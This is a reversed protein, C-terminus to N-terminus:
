QPAVRYGAPQRLDMAFVPRGMSPTSNSRALSPRPSRAAKIMQESPLTSKGAVDAIVHAYHSLLTAPSHGMWEAIQTISHRGEHILLSAFSHRLDYPVPGDYTRMPKRRSDKVVTTFIITALGVAECAPQWVRSRWNRWDGDHWPAGDPRAFILGDTRGRAGEITRLGIENLQQVVGSGALGLEGIELPAPYPVVLV